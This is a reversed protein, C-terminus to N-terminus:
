LFQTLSTKSGREVEEKKFMRNDMHFDKMRPNIPRNVIEDEEEYSKEISNQSSDL